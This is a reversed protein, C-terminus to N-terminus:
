LFGIIIDVPMSKNHSCTGRTPTNQLISQKSNPATDNFPLSSIIDPEEITVNDAHTINSPREEQDTYMNKELAPVVISPSVGTIHVDDVTLIKSSDVSTLPFGKPGTTM